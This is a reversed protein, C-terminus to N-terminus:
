LYVTHSLEAIIIGIYYIISLIVHDKSFPLPSPAHIKRCIMKIKPAGGICQQVMTTIFQERALTSYLRKYLYWNLNDTHYKITRLILTNKITWKTSYLSDRVYVDIYLQIPEPRRSAM